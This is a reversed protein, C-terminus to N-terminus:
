INTLITKKTDGTFASYDTFSVYVQLFIGSSIM